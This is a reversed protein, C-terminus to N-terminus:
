GHVMDTTFGGNDNNRTMLDEAYPTAAVDHGRPIMLVLVAVKLWGFWQSGGVPTNSCDYGVYRPFAM